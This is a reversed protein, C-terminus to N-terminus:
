KEQYHNNFYYDVNKLELITKCNLLCMIKKIEIKLQNFYQIIEEDTKTQLLQLVKQSLGVAKAGLALAKVIDLANRIGGSAIFECQSQFPISNLLSQVTSIGWNNLYSLPQTSRSNEIFAFNTGGKGSIDITKVGLHILQQISKKSMGFGVEKVIIPIKIFNLVDKLNKKWHSFNHDGEPMLLEQLTNLHIQAIDANTELIAQQIFTYVKDCGMNVAFLLNPNHNKFCTFSDKLNPNKIACSYSGSAVFLDCATAIKALRQNIIKSQESGGTMANIFFPASLKKGCISTEICIDHLDYQPLSQHVFHMSDFENNNTTSQLAHQLHDDKRNM